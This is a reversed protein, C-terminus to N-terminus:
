ASHLFKFENECVLDINFAKYCFQTIIIEILYSKEYIIFLFPQLFNPHEEDVEVVRQCSSNFILKSKFDFVRLFIGGLTMILMWLVDKFHKPICLFHMQSYYSPLSPCSPPKPLDSLFTSIWATLDRLWLKCLVCPSKSISPLNNWFFM